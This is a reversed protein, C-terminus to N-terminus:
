DQIVFYDMINREDKYINDLMEFCYDRINVKQLSTLTNSIINNSNGPDVFRLTTINNGIFKIVELLCKDIAVPMKTGTFAKHVLYELHMSKISISNEIKWAKLLKIIKKQKLTFKFASLQKKPNTKKYTPSGFFSTNGVYLYTDGTGNNVQRLPVVDIRQDKNNINFSLGVSHKQSRVSKLSKDNYEEACFVNVMDYVNAISGSNQKFAVQVDVDSGEISLGKVASGHLTPYEALQKGFKKHLGERVQNAKDLTDKASEDRCARLKYNLYGSVGATESLVKSMKKDRYAGFTFGAAGGFLVGKGFAKFFRGWDFEENSNMQNIANLLANGTGCLLAGGTGYKISKKM